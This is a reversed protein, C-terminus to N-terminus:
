LGTNQQIYQMAIICNQPSYNMLYNVKNEAGFLKYKANQLLVIKIVIFVM